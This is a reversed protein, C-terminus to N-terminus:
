GDVRMREWTLYRPLPAESAYAMITERVEEFRLIANRDGGSGPAASRRLARFHRRADGERKEVIYGGNRAAAQIYTKPAFGLILFDGEGLGDLAAHISDASVPGIREEGGINLSLAKSVTVGASAARLTGDAISASDRLFRVLPEAERRQKHSWWFFLAFLPISAAFFVLEGFTYNGSSVALYSCVALLLMGVSVAALGNLDSGARGTIRTGQRDRSIRGLLIPGYEDMASFWLCLFPGAIWGRAGNNPDYLEKMRSEITARLDSPASLSRVEFRYGFPQFAM